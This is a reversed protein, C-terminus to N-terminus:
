RGSPSDATQMVGSLLQYGAAWAKETEPTWEKGLGAALTWLLADGVYRYHREKVGYASHRRAMANIEASLDQLQHLRMVITSLMDMLKSYQADMNEPFLRRLGPHRDFLRTYFLGAVVEPRIGQLRSWSRKILVVQAETIM